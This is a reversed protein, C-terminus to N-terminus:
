CSSCCFNWFYNKYFEDNEDNYRNNIDNKIENIEELSKYQNTATFQVMTECADKTSIPPLDNCLIMMKSQIYFTMESKFIKRGKLKDGGSFLSKLLVGNIKLNKNSNDFNMENTLM